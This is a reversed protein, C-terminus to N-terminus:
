SGSGGSERWAFAVLLDFAVRSEDGGWGNEDFIADLRDRIDRWEEDHDLHPRQCLEIMQPLFEDLLAPADALTPFWTVDSM